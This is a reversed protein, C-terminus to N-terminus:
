RKTINTLTAIAPQPVLAPAQTAIETEYAIASLPM